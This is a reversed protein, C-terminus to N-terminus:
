WRWLGDDRVAVLRGNVDKCVAKVKTGGWVLEVKDGKLFLSLGRPRIAPFFM